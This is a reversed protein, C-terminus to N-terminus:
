CWYPYAELDSQTDIRILTVALCKKLQDFIRKLTSKCHPTWDFQCFPRDQLRYLPLRQVFDSSSAKCTLTRYALSLVQQLLKQCPQLDSLEVALDITWVRYSIIQDLSPITCSQARYFLAQFWPREDSLPWPDHLLFHSLFSYSSPVSWAALSDDHKCFWVTM